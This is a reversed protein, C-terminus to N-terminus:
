RAGFARLRIAQALLRGDRAIHTRIRRAVATSLATVDPSDPTTGMLSELLRLDDALATHEGGLEERVSPDLLPLVPFFASEESEAFALVAAGIEAVEGPSPEAGALRRELTRQEELLRTM